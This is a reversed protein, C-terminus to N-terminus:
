ETKEGADESGKVDRNKIDIRSILTLFFGACLIVDFWVQNATEWSILGNSAIVDLLNSIVVYSLLMGCIIASILHFYYKKFIFIFSGCVCFVIILPLITYTIGQGLSSLLGSLIPVSAIISFGFGVLIGVLYSIVEYLAVFVIVQLVAMWWSPTILEIDEKKDTM